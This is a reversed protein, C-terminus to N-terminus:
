FLQLSINNNGLMKLSRNSNNHIRYRKSHAVIHTIETHWGSSLRICERITKMMMFVCWGGRSGHSQQRKTYWFNIMCM